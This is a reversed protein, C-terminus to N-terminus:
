YASDSPKNNIGIIKYIDGTPPVPLPKSPTPAFTGNPKPDSVGMRAITQKALQSLNTETTM